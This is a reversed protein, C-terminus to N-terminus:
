LARARPAEANHAASGPCAAAHVGNLCSHLLGHAETTLRHEPGLMDKFMKNVTGAMVLLM